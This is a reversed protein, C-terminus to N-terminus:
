RCLFGDLCQRFAYFNDLLCQAAFAYLGHIGILCLHSCWLEDNRLNRPVSRGVDLSSRGLSTKPQAQRQFNRLISDCIAQRTRIAKGNPLIRAARCHARSRPSHCPSTPRHRLSRRPPEQILALSTLLPHVQQRGARGSTPHMPARSPVALCIYRTTLRSPLPLLCLRDSILYNKRLLHFLAIGMWGAWGYGVAYMIGTVCM